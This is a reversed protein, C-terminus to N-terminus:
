VGHQGHGGAYGRLQVYREIQAPTLLATQELHAQLHADRVRAQLAGIRDLAARLSQPTAQRNRFLADLEREAEIWRAGADRAAAQMRAYLAESRTRQEASLALADALELVHLPGPYGNLEAPRALGMGRGARLDALEAPSLASVERGEQGAYPSAPAGGHQACGALAAIALLLAAPWSRRAARRTAGSM